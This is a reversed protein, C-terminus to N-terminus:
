GPPQDPPCTEAFGYCGTEGCCRENATCYGKTEGHECYSCAWPETTGPCEPASTPGVCHGSESRQLGTTCGGLCARVGSPCSCRQPEPGQEAPVCEGSTGSSPDLECTTGSPCPGSTQTASKRAAWGEPDAAKTVGDDIHVPDFDRGTFDGGWRLGLDANRGRVCTLFTQVSPPLQAFPQGLCGSRRKFQGRCDVVRGKDKTYRLRFDITHGALHGSGRAGRPPSTPRRLVSVLPWLAVAGAFLLRPTLL